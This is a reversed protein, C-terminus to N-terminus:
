KVCETTKRGEIECQHPCFTTGAWPCKSVHRIPFQVASSGSPIHHTQYPLCMSGMNGRHLFHEKDLMKVYPESVAASVGLLLLERKISNKLLFPSAHTFTVPRQDCSSLMVSLVLLILKEFKKLFALPIFIEDTRSQKTTM